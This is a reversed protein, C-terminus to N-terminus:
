GVGEKLGEIREERWGGSRSSLPCATATGAPFSGCRLLLSPVHLLSSRPTPSPPLPFPSLSVPLLGASCAWRQNGDCRAGRHESPAAPAIRTPPRRGADCPGSSGGGPAGCGGHVCYPLSPLPPFPPIYSRRPPRLSCGFPTMAARGAESSPALATGRHSAVSPALRVKRGALIHYRNIFDKLIKNLAHGARILTCTM